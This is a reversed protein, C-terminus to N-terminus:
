MKVKVNEGLDPRRDGLIAAAMKFGSVLTSDGQWAEAQEPRVRLLIANPDDPGGPFYAEMAPNWIQKLKATDRVVDATGSVSLFFHQNPESFVVCVQPNARIEDDKAGHVDTVFWIADDEQRAVPAMPRARLRGADHDVLMCTHRDAMEAWIDNIDM